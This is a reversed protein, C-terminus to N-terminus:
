RRSQARGARVAAITRKATSESIRYQAMAERVMARYGMAGDHQEIWSELDDEDEGSPDAQGQDHAEGEILYGAALWRPLADQDAIRRRDGTPGVVIVGWWDGGTPDTPDSGVKLQTNVGRHGQGGTPSPLPERGDDDDDDPAPGRDWVAGLLQEWWRPRTPEDDDVDDYEDDDDLEAAARSDQWAAVMAPVRALAAALGIAVVIAIPGGWGRDPEPTTGALMMMTMM